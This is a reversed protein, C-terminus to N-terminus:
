LSPPSGPAITCVFVGNLREFKPCNDLFRGIVDANTVAHLSPRLTTFRGGKALAMPVLLQDALHHTVAAESALFAGASKALRKGVQEASVGREGFQTYFATVNEFVLKGFLVNGPGESHRQLVHQADESVNLAPAATALERKAIDESLNSVMADLSRSVESGREELVYEILNQAPEIGVVIEGGGAPFFGHKKLKGEVHYGMARLAPFYAQDLFDFPPASPNHTGGRLTIRSPGEAQLLMPLITQLVLGTSGATGVTFDYDGAKIPGPRFSIEGSGLEAGTVHGDCVETAALVCTLHQRMLGPKARGARVNAVRVAKGTIASLALSTRVIQGGGEGLSGDITIM